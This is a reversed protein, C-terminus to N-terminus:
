RTRMDAVYDQYEALLRGAREPSYEDQRLTRTALRYGAFCVLADHYAANFAPVDSEETLPLVGAGDALPIAYGYVTMSTPASVAPPPYLTLTDPTEQLWRTPTGPTASHWSPDILRELDAVRTPTLPKATAGFRVVDVAFVDGPLAYQAQGDVAAVLAARRLCGTDRCFRVYAANLAADVMAPTLRDNGAEPQAIAAFTASRLEGLTM